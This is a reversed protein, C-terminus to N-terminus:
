KVKGFFLGSKGDHKGQFCVWLHGDHEALGALVHAGDTPLEFFETVRARAPDLECLITRQAKDFIGVAAIIKGNALRIMRPNSIPRDTETWQWQTYPAKSVALFGTAGVGIPGSRSFLCIATDADFVLAGSDPFFGSFTEEYLPQFAKGDRSSMIRVTQANGCICGHVFNYAIGRHWVPRELSHNEPDV